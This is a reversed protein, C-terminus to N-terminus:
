LYWATIACGWWCLLVCCKFLHFCAILYASNLCLMQLSKCSEAFECFREVVVTSDCIVDLYVGGNQDNQAEM